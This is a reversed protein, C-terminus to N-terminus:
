GLPGHDRVASAVVDLDAVAIRAVVAYQGESFRNAEGLFFGCRLFSRQPKKRAGSKASAQSLFFVLLAILGAGGIAPLIVPVGRPAVASALVLYDM